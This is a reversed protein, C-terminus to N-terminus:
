PSTDLPLPLGASPFRSFETPCNISRHVRVIASQPCAGVQGSQAGALLLEGAAALRRSWNSEHSYIISYCTNNLRSTLSAPRRFHLCELAPVGIDELEDLALGVLLLLGLRQDLGAVFGIEVAFGIARHHELVGIERDPAGVGEEPGDLGVLVPGGTGDGGAPGHIDVLGLHEHVLDGLPCPEAAVGAHLVFVGDLAPM